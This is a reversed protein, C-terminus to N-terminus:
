GAFPARCLRCRPARLLRRQREPFPQGKALTARWLGANGATQRAQPSVADSM